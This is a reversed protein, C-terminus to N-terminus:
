ATEAQAKATTYIGRLDDVVGLLNMALGLDGSFMIQGSMAAGM